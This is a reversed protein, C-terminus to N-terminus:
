MMLRSCESRPSVEAYHGQCYYSLMKSDTDEEYPVSQKMRSGKPYMMLVNPADSNARHVRNENFIEDTNTKSKTHAQHAKEPGSYKSSIWGLKQPKARKRVAHFHQTIRCQLM